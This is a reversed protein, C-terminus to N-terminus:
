VRAGPPDPAAKALCRAFGSALHSSRARRPAHRKRPRASNGRSKGPAAIRTM